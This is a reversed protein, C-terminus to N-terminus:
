PAGGAEVPELPALGPVLAHVERRLNVIAQAAVMFPIAESVERGIAETLANQAAATCLNVCQQAVHRRVEETSTNM